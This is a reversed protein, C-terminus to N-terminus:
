ILDVIRELAMGRSGKILISTNEPFDFNDEEFAEFSNYIIAQENTIVRSFHKGILIVHDIGLSSALDAIFQHEKQSEDGLEFMDGLFAMKDGTLLSFNKLAAEMSTPNANYADLVITNTRKSIIQSRNNSPVYKEIAKKIDSEPVNFYDGVAIAAAVNSFNYTGVLNTQIITEKYSVKLFPHIDILQVLVNSGSTRDFSFHRHGGVIEVQKPDDANLFILGNHQKLYDYLESKGKIVGQVGGFGELHAKGFNTIYGMDPQAIGSLLAIEGVHNAGMEVVGIETDKNMSLLTLPVGIHNNLNGKTATVNFIQSLVANILEKTTTKGNSGTLSLIPINLHNRHFIALKQLTSLVDEVLLTKGEEVHFEEEDIIAYSAGKQLAQKAFSNGNFNEGRLAFFLCGDFIKRTDTCVGSSAIFRKHLDETNMFAFTVLFGQEIPVPSTIYQQQIILRKADEKEQGKHRRSVNCM